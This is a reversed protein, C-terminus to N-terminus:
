VCSNKVNKITIDIKLKDSSFTKFNNETSRLVTNGYKGTYLLGKKCSNNQM